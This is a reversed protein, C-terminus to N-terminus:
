VLETSRDGADSVDCDGVSHFHHPGGAFHRALDCAPHVVLAPAKWAFGDYDPPPSIVRLMIPVLPGAGEMPASWAAYGLCEVFGRRYTPSRYPQDLYRVFTWSLIMVIVAIAYFLWPQRAWKPTVTPVAQTTM